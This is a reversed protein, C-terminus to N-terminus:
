NQMKLFVAPIKAVTNCRCGHASMKYQSIKLIFLKLPDGNSIEQERIKKKEKLLVSITGLTKFM